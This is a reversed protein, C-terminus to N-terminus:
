GVSEGATTPPLYWSQRRAWWWRYADWRRWLPSTLTLSAGEADVAEALLVGHRPVRYSEGPMLFIDDSVGEVTIWVRGREAVLDCGRADACRWLRGSTLDIRQQFHDNM